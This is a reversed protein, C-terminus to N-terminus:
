VPRGPPLVHDVRDHECRPLLKLLAACGAMFADAQGDFNQSSELLRRYGEGAPELEMVVWYHSGSHHREVALALNLTADEM